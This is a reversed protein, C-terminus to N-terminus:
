KLWTWFTNRACGSTSTWIELKTKQACSVPDMPPRDCHIETWGKDLAGGPQTIDRESGWTTPQGDCFSKVRGKLVQRTTRVLLECREQYVLPWSMMAEGSPTTKPWGAPEQCDLQLTSTWKNLRTQREQLSVRRADTMLLFKSDAPFTRKSHRAMRRMLKAYDLGYGQGKQNRSAKRGGGGGFLMARLIGDQDPLSFFGSENASIRVFARHLEDFTPTPLEASALKASVQGSALDAYVWFVLSAGILFLVWALKTM